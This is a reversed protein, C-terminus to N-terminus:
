AKETLRAVTQEITHMVKRSHTEDLAAAHPQNFRGADNDFYLGSANAFEPDTSLAALIDAGIQLDSGAVGFGEKVMKSALLSGPNVAIMAPGNPHNRALERTWITLALKSQAYAPYDDIVHKGAMAETDIPAQAASSLNVIRGEPPVIPLLLKTLLYPAFTNIVFRLDLGDPGIPDPIKYVGANNIIVDLRKHRALVADALTKVGDMSSLDALYSETIGGIEAAAAALKAQSRGHLLLTHGDKALTRATQLGVGDTAGTILITKAM